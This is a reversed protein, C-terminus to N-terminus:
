VLESTMKKITMLWANLIVQFISKKLLMIVQGIDIKMRLVRDVDKFKVM